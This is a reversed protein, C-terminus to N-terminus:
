YVGSLISVCFYWLWVCWLLIASGLSSSSIHFTTLSLSANCILSCFVSCAPLCHFSMKLTSFSLSVNCGLIRDLPFLIRWFYLCFMNKLCVFASTYSINLLSKLTLFTIGSPFQSGCMFILLESFTLMHILILSKLFWKLSENFSLQKVFIYFHIRLHIAYLSFFSHFFLVFFSFPVYFHLTTLSQYKCSTVM